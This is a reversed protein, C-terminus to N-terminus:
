LQGKARIIERLMFHKHKSIRQCPVIMVLDGKSAVEAEDHAMFKKTYRLRKRYKPHVKFRDVAVNVTKQMKTSVVTGVLAGRPISEKDKPPSHVLEWGPITSNDKLEENTMDSYDPREIPDYYSTDRFTSMIDEVNYEAAPPTPPTAASPASSDDGAKKDKDDSSFYRSSFSHNNIFARPMTASTAPACSTFQQLTSPSSAALPLRQVVRRCFLGRMAMSAM